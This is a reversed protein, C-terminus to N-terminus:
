AAIRRLFGGISSLTAKAVVTGSGRHATLFRHVVVALRYFYPTVHTPNEELV